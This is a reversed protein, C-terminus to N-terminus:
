DVLRPGQIQGLEGEIHRLTDQLAVPTGQDLNELPGTELLEDGRASALKGPDLHPFGFRGPGSTRLQIQQSLPKPQHLTSRVKASRARLLNMGKFSKVFFM